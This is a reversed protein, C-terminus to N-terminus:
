QVGNVQEKTPQTEIGFQKFINNVKQVFSDHDWHNNIDDLALDDHAEQLQTAMGQTMGTPVFERVVDWCAGSWVGTSSTGDLKKATDDDLLLGIACAKCDPNRYRCFNGEHSPFGGNASTSILLDRYEELTM